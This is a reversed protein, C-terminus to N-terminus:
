ATVDTETQTENRAWKIWVACIIITSIILPAPWVNEHVTDFYSHYHVGVYFLSAVRLLNLAFILSIGVLLGVVKRFFSAPFSIVVACVFWVLELASCLPLVTIAHKSSWITSATVQSNEGLLHLIANSIRATAILYGSVASDLLHTISVSYYLLILLCFKVCFWFAPSKSEYLTRWRSQYSYRPAPQDTKKIRPRM